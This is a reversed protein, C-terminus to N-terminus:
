RWGQGYAPLPLKLLVKIDNKSLRYTIFSIGTYLYSDRQCYNEGGVDQGTDQRGHAPQVDGTIMATPPFTEAHMDRRGV